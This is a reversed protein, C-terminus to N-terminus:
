SRRRRPGERLFSGVGPVLCALAYAAYCLLVGDLPLRPGSLAEGHSLLYPLPVWIVALSAPMSSAQWGYSWRWGLVVLLLMALFSGYFVPAYEEAWAQGGSELRANEWLQHGGHFWNAGFVFALGASLRRQFFGGPDDEVQDVVLRALRRYRAPQDMTKLEEIEKSRAAPVGNLDRALKAPLAAPDIPGSDAQPDNGIWVHLYASDVVPVVEGFTRYTQLTWPVLGNSFGLFALLACLWGRPLSRCRLLFWLLAVVAFPLLPARVLALGALALGYLLSGTAGGEQGARAGLCMCAALLFTALVGDALEATNVIWFPYFACALGALFGVLNSRFARRAFFFYLGATLAGLVCQGWRVLVPWDDSWGAALALLWPYGPSVHATPEEGAGLPAPARFGRGDQFNRILINREQADTGQVIVPGDSTAGDAQDSLYWARTGCAAALVLLLLGLDLLGLRRMDM